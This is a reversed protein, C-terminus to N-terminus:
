GLSICTVRLLRFQVELFSQLLVGIIRVDVVVSSLQVEDLLLEGLCGLVILLRDVQVLVEDERVDLKTHGL